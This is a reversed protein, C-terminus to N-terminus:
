FEYLHAPNDVLIIQIVDTDDTGNYIQDLLYGDIPMDGYHWAHPWDAGWALQDPAADILAQAVPVVDDYPLGIKGVLFLLSDPSHRFSGAARSSHKFRM